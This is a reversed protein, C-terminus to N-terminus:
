KVLEMYQAFENENCLKGMKQYERKIAKIINDMSIESGNQAALFAASLAINKINGGTIQFQRALFSFDIDKDLPAEAPFINQWIRKRDNEDPIPFEITFHMRRSFAEDINKRLNTALIVMGDYEDMKQLLYAIEINAYRDHADKVESRKGFIADAEDFFLIANSAQGEKFILSLNKETEGIYKSVVTSLDIKYLDLQLEHAIIEAAMTKGTGSPGSFLANLGKGLTLKKEFGWDSYVKYYQKIYSYIEQLQEFLDPPLVIDQWSYKPQIKRALEHLVERSENRCFLSLDLATVIQHGPERMRAMNRANIAVNRIQGGTLRFKSAFNNLDVDKELPTNKDWYKEWLKQRLSYSPVPLEISIFSSDQWTEKPRWEKNSAVFVWQPYKKLGSLLYDANLKDGNDGTMLIDYSDIYLAANQLMGERLILPFITEVAAEKLIMRNLDMYLMPIGLESCIAEATSKKGSGSEGHLHCVLSQPCQAILMTILDKLDEPVMIEDLRVEPRVLQSFSQLRSDIEDKELLYHLIRENIKISKSLLSAPMSPHDDYLQIFQYKILPANSSFANRMKLNESFSKSLVELVLNVAPNKRTIDDQMYAFIRQYKLDIEPLLSLLLVDIEFDSLQFLQKLVDLRLKIGRRSSEIKRSTIDKELQSISNTLKVMDPRQSQFSENEILNRDNRFIADVEKESIYLGKLQEDDNQGNASRLGALKLQLKLEIRSIEAIVHEINNQFCDNM